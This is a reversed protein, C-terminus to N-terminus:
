PKGYRKKRARALFLLFFALFFGIGAYLLRSAAAGKWAGTVLAAVLLFALTLLSVEALRRDAHREMQRQLLDLDRNDLRIGIGEKKEFRKLVTQVREPLDRLFAAYDIFNNALSRRFRAPDVYTEFAKQVFPALHENFDFDPYLALGMVETTILAKSVLALDAPFGIRRAAGRNILRFFIWAISPNTPSFFLEGLIVSADKEFAAVDSADDIRTLHLFHSLFSEIDRNAFAVLCGTLERRQTESLYGVIGFDYFCLKNGELAFSNGPNPDAHFFGDILMQQLQADVGHLALAKRDLGSQEIGALDDARVGHIYEMTLVRPGSFEWYILPIKIHPNDRFAYRFREANHGEVTFDLERRTWDAFEAVVQVPNYPRIEPVLAEALRALYFLLHIDQEIVKQIDPRQVKVAVETGDDLYAHHVQALSAAAAPQRDFAHFIRDPPGGLEKEIIQEVQEFPFSAVDSQLRSLERSLNEGVFDPRLSLIQGLKVFTPGLKEFLERLEPPSIGGSTGEAALLGVPARRPHLVADLRLRWPVLYLLRVRGILVRGGFLFTTALIVRLRALYAIRM